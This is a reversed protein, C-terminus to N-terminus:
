AASREGIGRQSHRPHDNKQHMKQGAIVIKSDTIKMLDKNVSGDAFSETVTLYDMM